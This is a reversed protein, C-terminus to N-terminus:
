SSFGAEKLVSAPEPERLFDRFDQAARQQVTDVGEGDIVIYPLMYGPKRILPTDMSAIRKPNSKRLRDGADSSEAIWVAPVALVSNDQQSIADLAEDEDAGNIEVTICYGDVARDVANWKDGAQALSEELKPPAIVRLTRRGEPCTGGEADARGGLNDSGWVVAFIGAGVIALVALVAFPWKAVGRSAGVARHYGTDEAARRRRPPEPEPKSHRGM